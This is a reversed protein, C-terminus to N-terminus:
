LLEQKHTLPFDMYGRCETVRVTAHMRASVGGRLTPAVYSRMSIWWSVSLMPM